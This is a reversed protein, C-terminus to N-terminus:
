GSHRTIRARDADFAVTGAIGVVAPYPARYTWILDEILMGDGLDVSHYAADGKYPCSTTTDSARLVSADVDDLPVYFVPPYDAESLAVARSTRAVERGGVVVVVEGGVPGVTLPHNPTPGLVPRDESTSM